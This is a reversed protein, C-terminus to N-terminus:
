LTDLWGHTDPARGTAIAVLRDRLTAGVSSEGSPPLEIERNRYRIWRVPSVTAATGTGFCERLSGHEHASLIERLAVRREIVRLGLDRLVILASDRTVGPLITGGLPPTVVTDGLVFFVNMVGCEEIYEREMGDLWLVSHLGAQQAEREAILAPAYNGAPKIDGTGGPFARVHQESVLLDVPGRYYHTFPFTFIVFLCEEPPKVRVSPDVSFLCPRIYLAGRDVPPVWERDLKVLERLGQLFLQEPVEPMALRAASRNLRESNATPRFLAVRGDVTRQAKLGEFVSLGYQLASINPPLSLAGYERVAVEQWRGDRFHAVLMHDSFVSSFAIQDANAVSAARSAPTRQITLAPVAAANVALVNKALSSM